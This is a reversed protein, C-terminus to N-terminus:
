AIEIVISTGRKRWQEVEAKKEQLTARLLQAIAM